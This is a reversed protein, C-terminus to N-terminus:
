GKDIFSKIMEEQYPSLNQFKVGIGQHGVWVIMGVLKFLQQYNPLSFALNMEQGVSFSESTEIFVGVTSIDLIYGEYAQELITYNVRILCPKRLHGRMSTEEEDLSVTKVPMEEAPIKELKELLKLQQTDTMDVIIKQLYRRIDGKLLQKLLDLQQESSLSNVLKFLRPLLSYKDVEIEPASM